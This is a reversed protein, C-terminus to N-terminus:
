YPFSCRGAEDMRLSVESNMKWFAEFKWGNSNVWQGVSIIQHIFAPRSTGENKELSALFTIPNVESHADWRGSSPPAMDENLVGTASIAMRTDAM